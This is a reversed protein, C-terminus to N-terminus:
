AHPAWSDRRLCLRERCCCKSVALWVCYLSVFPSLWHRAGSLAPWLVPAWCVTRLFPCCPRTCSLPGPSAQPHLLLSLTLCLSLSLSWLGFAKHVSQNSLQGLAPLSIWDSKQCAASRLSYGHLDGPARNALRDTRVRGILFASTVCTDSGM